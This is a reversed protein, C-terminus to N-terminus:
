ELCEEFRALWEDRTKRPSWFDPTNLADIVWPGNWGLPLLLEKEDHDFGFCKAEFAGQPADYQRVRDHLHEMTADGRGPAADGWWTPWFQRFLTTCLADDFVRLSAAYRRKIYRQVDGVGLCEPADHLLLAFRVPAPEQNRDAWDHLRVSHEGVSYPLVTQGGFRSVHSLGHAIVYPTVQRADITDDDAIIL